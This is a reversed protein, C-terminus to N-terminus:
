AARRITQAQPETLNLRRWVNPTEGVGRRFVKTFHSQDAFGCALAIQGLPEDTSLLLEQALKLRLRIIYAHPSEGFTEKFVRSFHCTSLSVQAALEDRPLPRDVNERVYREIKRKQWPALGGRVNSRERCAPATLLTVLRRASVRAEAPDRVAARRIDDLIRTVESAILNSPEPPEGSVTYASGCV